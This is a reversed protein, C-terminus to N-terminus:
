KEKKYITDYVAITGSEGLADKGKFLKVELEEGTKGDLVILYKGKIDNYEGYYELTWTTEETDNWRSVEIVQEAINDVKHALLYKKIEEWSYTFPEDLDEEKILNGQEDYDKYRVVFNKEFREIVSKLKGNKYYLELTEFLSNEPKIISTYEDNWENQEIRISDNLKFSYVDKIKNENFLEIDFTKMTNQKTKIQGKCGFLSFFLITLFFLKM